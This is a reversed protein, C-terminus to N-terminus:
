SLKEQYNNIGIVYWNKIYHKIEIGEWWVLFLGDFYKFGKIM